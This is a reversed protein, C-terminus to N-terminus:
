QPVYHVLAVSQGNATFGAAIFGGESTAIMATLITPANATPLPDLDVSDDGTYDVVHLQNGAAVAVRQDALVALATATQTALPAGFATDVAGTATLRHVGVTSAFVIGTDDAVAREIDPAAGIMTGYSSDIALADDTRVGFAITGTRGLFTPGAVLATLETNSTGLMAMADVSTGIVHAAQATDSAVVTGSADALVHTAVFPLSMASSAVGTSSIAYLMQGGVIVVGDGTAAVAGRTLRTSTQVCGGGFAANVKGHLNTQCVYSTPSGGIAIYLGAPGTVLDISVTGTVATPATVLAEGNTGFTFDLAFHPIAPASVDILPAADPKADSGGCAVLLPLLVRM